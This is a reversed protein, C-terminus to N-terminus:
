NKFIFKITLIQKFAKSLLKLYFYPIKKIYFTNHKDSIVQQIDTQAPNGKRIYKVTKFVTYIFVASGYVYTRCSSNYKLLLVIFYILLIDSM